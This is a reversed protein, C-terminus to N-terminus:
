WVWDLNFIVTVRQYAVCESGLLSDTGQTAYYSHGDCTRIM